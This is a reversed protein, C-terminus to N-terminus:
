AAHLMEAEVKARIESRLSDRTGLDVRHELIKELFLQIRVFGFLGMPESLEVLLDVDSDPGADDRAVSGFLYLAGVGLARLAERHEGIIRLAEDRCM